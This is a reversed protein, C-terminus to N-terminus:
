PCIQTHLWFILIAVIVAEVCPPTYPCASSPLAIYIMEKKVSGETEGEEMCDVVQDGQCTGGLVDEDDNRDIGVFSNENKSIILM